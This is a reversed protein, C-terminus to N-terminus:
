KKREKKKKKKKKKARIYGTTFALQSKPFKGSIQCQHTHHIKLGSNKCFGVIAMVQFGPLLFMETM